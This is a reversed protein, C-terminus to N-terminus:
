QHEKAKVNSVAVEEVLKAIVGQLQRFSRSAALRTEEIKGALRRRLASQQRDVVASATAEDVTTALPAAVRALETKRQVEVIALRTAEAQKYM